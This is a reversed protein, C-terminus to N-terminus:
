KEPGLIISINYNYLDVKAENTTSKRWNEIELKLANIQNNKRWIKIKLKKITEQYLDIQAKLDTNEELISNRHIQDKIEEVHGRNEHYYNNNVEKSGRIRESAIWKSKKRM